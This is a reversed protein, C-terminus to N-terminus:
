RSRYKDPDISHVEIGPVDVVPTPVRYADPNAAYAKEVAMKRGDAQQIRQCEAIMVPASAETIVVRWNWIVVPDSRPGAQTPIMRVALRYQRSFDVSDLKCQMLVARMFASWRTLAVGKPVHGMIVAQKSGVTPKGRVEFIGTRDLLEMLLNVNM